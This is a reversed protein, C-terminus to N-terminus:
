RSPVRYIHLHGIHAHAVEFAHVAQGRAAQSAALLLHTPMAYWM